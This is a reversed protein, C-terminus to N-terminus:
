KILKELEKILERIEREHKKLQDKDESKVDELYSVYGNLENFIDELSHSKAYYRGEWPYIIKKGNETLAYRGDADKNVTGEKALESLLPYLSGPSPRWLGFSISEIEEMIEEGNKPGHRLISIVIPRLLGRKGKGLTKNFAGDM